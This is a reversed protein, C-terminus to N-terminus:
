AILTGSPHARVPVAAAFAALAGLTRGTFVASTGDSAFLTL